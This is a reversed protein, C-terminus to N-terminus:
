LKTAENLALKSPEVCDIHKVKNAIFKAWRGSGAGMDFCKNEKNMYKKPLIHFYDEFMRELDSVATDRQNFKQWEKGFDEIVQKEIKKNM